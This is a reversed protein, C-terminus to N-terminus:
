LYEILNRFLCRTACGYHQLFVLFVSFCLVVGPLFSRFRCGDINGPSYHSLTDFPSSGRGLDVLGSGGISSDQASDIYANRPHNSSGTRGIEALHSVPM